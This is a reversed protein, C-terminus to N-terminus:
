LQGQAKLVNLADHLLTELHKISHYRLCNEEPLNVSADDRAVLLTPRQCGLAYGLPLYVAPDNESVDVIVVSASQIRQMIQSLLDDETFTSAQVQECLLGLAHTPQQIGFYFLDEADDNFPMVVYAHPRRDAQQVTVEGPRDLALEYGWGERLPQAYSVSAFEADVISRLQILTRANLEVITIQELAAPYDGSQFADFYGAIQSRLMENQDLGAGVGHITMALHRTNPASEALASLSQRALDRVVQYNFESLNPTGVLLAQPATTAGRTEVLCYEGPEVRLSAASISMSSLLTAVMADAGFFNQAYKFAIVDAEITMINSNEVRLVLSRAKPNILATLSGLLRPSIRAHLGSRMDEFQINALRSWSDGAYLVPFIAKKSNEALLIEREVWDSNAPM